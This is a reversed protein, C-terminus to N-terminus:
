RALRTVQERTKLLNQAGWIPGSIAHIGVFKHRHHVDCLVMLNDPHHDVWALMQARTFDERYAPEHPRERRFRDVIRANFKALDVATALAWEVHCHHTELAKAAFPNHQRSGLTSSRVGCIFCPTDEIHVLRQHVEAYAPTEQRPPHPPYFAEEVLTRRLCHIKHILRGEDRSWEPRAPRRGRTAPKVDRPQPPHPVRSRYTGNPLDRVIVLERHPVHRAGGVQARKFNPENSQTKRNM